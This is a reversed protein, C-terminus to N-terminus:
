RSLKLFRPLQEKATALRLLYRQELSTIEDVNGPGPPTDPSYVLMHFAVSTLPTDQLPLREMASVFEIWRDAMESYLAADQEELYGAVTWSPASVLGSCRNVEPLVIHSLGNDFVRGLPFLRCALPRAEYIRCGTEAWFYCVPDRPLMVLPFSKARDTDFVDLLDEYPIGSAKRIRAVEYPNLVIPTAAKCCTASCGAAGCRLQLLDSDALVRADAGAIKITHPLNTM